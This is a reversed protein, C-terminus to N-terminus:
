ESFVDGRDMAPTTVRQGHIEGRWCGTPGHRNEIFEKFRELDGAIRASPFGLSDGVMEIAGLPEYEVRVRVRTHEEDIPEFHVVGSNRAGTLSRWAICEDAVQEFIEATWEEIKGGIEARWYLIRSDLQRVEKVGRMFEPFDEFQTWQNYVVTQPQAVDISKEITKM